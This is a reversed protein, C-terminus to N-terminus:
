QIVRGTDLFATLSSLKDICTSTHQTRDVELLGMTPFDPGSQEMERGVNRWWILIASHIGTGFHPSGPEVKGAGVDSCGCSEGCQVGDVADCCLV